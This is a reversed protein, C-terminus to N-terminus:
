LHLINKNDFLFEILIRDAHGFSKGRREHMVSATELLKPLANVTYGSNRGGYSFSPVFKRHFDPGFLNCGVGLVTGTNFMSNISCTTYDGMTVGCFKLNTNVFTGSPYHWQKIDQYSNQLNSFNSGAGINCWSGIVANGLYGDHAKNSFSHFVVNNNEGGVKCYPGITSGGCIRAGPKVVAYEGIAVPGTIISGEGIRAGKGIYIPGEKCNLIAGEMIVQSAVYLNKGPGILLNNKAISFSKAQPALLLYDQRIEQENYSFLDTLRDTFILEENEPFIKVSNTLTKVNETSWKGDSSYLDPISTGSSRFAIIRDRYKLAEGPELSTIHQLLYSSPILAGDIWLNDDSLHISFRTQLYPVTATTAHSQLYFQWKERITLIGLRLEAVPRTLTMPFLSERSTGDFLIINM